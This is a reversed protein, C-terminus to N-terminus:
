TTAVVVVSGVPPQTWNAPQEILFGVLNKQWLSVQVTSATAPDDPASDMQVVAHRAVRINPPEVAIAFSAGDVLTLLDAPVGDSPVVPLGLANGGRVSVSPFSLVGSTDHLSALTCAIRTSCVWVATSLNGAYADLASQMDAALDGTSAIVPAGSTIAAPKADVVGANSPDFMAVDIAKVCARTFKRSVLKEAAPTASRVLADTLVCVGTCKMPTLTQPTGLALAAVPKPAGEGVWQVLPDAPDPLLSTDFPVRALGPLRGYITLPEASEIIETQSVRLLADADGRANPTVAARQIQTVPSNSGWRAAAFAAGAVPDNKSLV